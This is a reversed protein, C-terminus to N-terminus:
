NCLLLHKFLLCWILDIYGFVLGAFTVIIALVYKLLSGTRQAHSWRVLIETVWNVFPILLLILQILRPQKEFAKEFGKAKAM